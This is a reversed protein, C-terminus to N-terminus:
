SFSCLGHPLPMGTAPVLMTFEYGSGSWEPDDSEKAWLESLGYTVLHWLSGERYADIGQLSDGFAVGLGSALHVPAVGPHAKAGAAAIADWGPAEQEPDDSRPM